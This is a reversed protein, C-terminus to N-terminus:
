FFYSHATYIGGIPHGKFGDHATGEDIQCGHCQDDIEKWSVHPEDVLEVQVLRPTVTLQHGREVEGDVLGILHNLPFLVADDTM